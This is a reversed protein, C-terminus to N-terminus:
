AEGGLDKPNEIPSSEEECKVGHESFWEKLADARSPLVQGHLLCEAGLVGDLLWVDCHNPDSPYRRIRLNLKV